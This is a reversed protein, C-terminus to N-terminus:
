AFDCPFRCGLYYRGQWRSFQSIDDAGKEVPYRSVRSVGRGENVQGNPVRLIEGCHDPSGDRVVADDLFQTAASHAHHVLGLVRAKVTEDGHLEQGVVDRAIRLGEAAELALRLSGRGQIMGVDARDVVDALVLPMGEDGHFEEIADRELM